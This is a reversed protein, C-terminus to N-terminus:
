GRSLIIGEYIDGGTDGPDGAKLAGRDGPDGPDGPDGAKLAGRDGFAIAVFIYM